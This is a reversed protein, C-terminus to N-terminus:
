PRELFENALIQHTIQVMADHDFVDKRREIRILPFGFTIAKYNDGIYRVACSTNAFEESNIHHIEGIQESEYVNKSFVFLADADPEPILQNFACISHSEGSITWNYHGAFITLSASIDVSTPLDPYAEAASLLIDVENEVSDASQIHLYKRAFSSESFRMGVPQSGTISFIPQIGSIWLNGGMELYDIFLKELKYIHDKGDHATYWIITSYASMGYYTNGTSDIASDVFVPKGTLGFMEEYDWVTFNSYGAENLLNNYARDKNRDRDNDEKTGTADDDVLLIGRDFTPGTVHFTLSDPTEDKAGKDDVSRVWLRYWGNQFKFDGFHDDTYTWTNKYLRYIKEKHLPGDIKYEYGVIIGDADNGHWQLRMKFSNGTSSDPPVNPLFTTPSLNPAAIGPDAPEIHCACYVIAIGLIGLILYDRIKM